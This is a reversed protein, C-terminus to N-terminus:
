IQLLIPIVYMLRSAYLRHKWMYFFCAFSIALYTLVVIVSTRPSMWRYNSEFAKAQEAMRQFGSVPEIPAADATVANDPVKSKLRTRTIKKPTSTSCFNLHFHHQYGINQLSYIHTKSNFISRLPAKFISKYVITKM